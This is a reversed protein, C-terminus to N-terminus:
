AAHMGDMLLPSDGRLQHLGLVPFACPAAVLLDTCVAAVGFLRHEYQIQFAAKVDDISEYVIFAPM